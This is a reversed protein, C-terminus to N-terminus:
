QVARELKAVNSQRAIPRGGMRPVAIVLDRKTIQNRAHRACVPLALAMGCLLWFPRSFDAHLVSSASLYGILALGIAGALGAHGGQPRTGPRRATLVNYGLVAVFSFFGLLALLGGEAALELYLSHAKRDEFRLHKNHDLSYKQFLAAYGGPGVGGWVNDTFIRVALANEDIRNLISQDDDRTSQGGVFITAVAAARDFYSQPMLLSAAVILPIALTLQLRWHRRYCWALALAMIAVGLMAGRSYTLIVGLVLLAACAAGALRWWGNRGCIAEYAAFPIGILLIRGFSNADVYPGHVRISDIEGAIHHFGAGGLGGFDIDYRGTAVQFVAIAALLALSLFVTRAIGRLVDYSGAAALILSAIIANRYLADTQELAAFPEYAWFVSLGALVCYLLLATLSLRDAIFTKGFRLANALLFLAAVAVMAKGAGTIAHQASLIDSLNLATVAVLGYLVLEPRALAVIVLPGAAVIAFAALGILPDIFAIAISLGALLAGALVLGASLRGRAPNAPWGGGATTCLASV